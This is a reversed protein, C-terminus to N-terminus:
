VSYLGSLLRRDQSKPPEQKWEKVLDLPSNELPERYRSILNEISM